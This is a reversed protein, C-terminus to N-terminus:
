KKVKEDMVDGVLQRAKEMLDYAEQIRDDPPEIESLKEMAERIAVESPTQLTLNDRRIIQEM